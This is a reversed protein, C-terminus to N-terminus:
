KTVRSRWTDPDQHMHFVAIVRVATREPTYLVCYPFHKVIARRLRKHVRPYARSNRQVLEITGLVAQKFRSGLGAKENEYWAVAEEFEAAAAPTLVVAVM